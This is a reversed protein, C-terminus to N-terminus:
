AGACRRARGGGTTACPACPPTTWLTWRTGRGPWRPGRLAAALIRPATKRLQGDIEKTRPLKAYIERRLAEQKDRHAQQAQKLRLAGRAIIEERYAM